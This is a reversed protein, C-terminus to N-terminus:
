SRGPHQTELANPIHWLVCLPPGLIWVNSLQPTPSPLATVPDDTHGEVYSNMCVTLGNPKNKKGVSVRSNKKKKKKKKNRYSGDLESSTDLQQATPLKTHPGNQVHLYFFSLSIYGEKESIHTALGPSAERKQGETHAPIMFLQGFEVRIDSVRNFSRSSPCSLTVHRAPSQAASAEVNNCIRGITTTSLFLPTPSPSARSPTPSSSLLRAGKAM